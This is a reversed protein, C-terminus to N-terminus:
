NINNRVLKENLEQVAKTLIAIMNNYEVGALKGNNENYFVLEKNVKEVEEAIFGYTINDCLEDTYENSEINKKRYNFQVPNLRNIFDISVISEINAKSERTSVLYGLFGSSEIVCTRGTTGNNYTLTGVNIYGDGRVRFPYYNGDNTRVSLAYASSSNSYADIFVGSAGSATSSNQLTHAYGSALSVAATFTGAVYLKVGADTTTGISLNGASSLRMWESTNTEFQMYQGSNNYSIGGYLANTGNTFALQGYYSNNAAKIELNSRTAGISFLTTGDDSVMSNGIVNTSTFKALTNTTGSIASTINSTLALTGTTAPFTYTYDGGTQFTLTANYGSNGLNILLGSATSSIGTYGVATITAGNKILIGAESKLKYNMTIVDSSNSISLASTSLVSNFIDFSNAGANYTNGIKWKSTSANQFEIYANNSGTGNMFLTGSLTGGTLPLYSSLDSTLSFTGSANPLSYTRTGTLISGSIIGVYSLAGDYIISLGNTATSSLSVYGSGGYSYAGIYTKIALSSAAGGIGDLNINSKSIISNTYLANTGLDLTTTAGTYPVYSSLNSTLALTGSASPFVYSYSAATTFSIQSLAGGGNYFGLTYLGGGTTSFM